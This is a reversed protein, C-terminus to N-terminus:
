VKTLDSLCLAEHCKRKIHEYPLKDDTSVIVCKGKLKRLVADAETIAHIYYYQRHLLLYGIFSRVPLHGQQVIYNYKM